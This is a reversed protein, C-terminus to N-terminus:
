FRAFLSIGAVPSLHTRGDLAIGKTRAVARVDARLGIAKLRAGPRARLLFRVGGGASYTRGTAVLTQGEHLQRLYGAGAALFPVGRAGLRWRPLDAVVAGGVAIQTIPETATVPAAQEADATISTQLQAKVYSAEAEVEFVRSLRVGVRAEPGVASGLTSSTTFLTYPAGTNTTETADARGFGAGGYWTAGGAIEIRGPVPDLAQARAPAANLACVAIAAALWSGRSM